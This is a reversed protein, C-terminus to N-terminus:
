SMGNESSSTDEARTSDKTNNEFFKEYINEYQMDIIGFLLELWVALYAACFSVAVGVIINHGTVGLYIASFWFTSCKCCDIIPLKGLIEEAKGILGMHNALVCIITIPILATYGM